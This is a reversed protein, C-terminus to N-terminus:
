VKPGPSVGAGTREEVFAHMRRALERRLEDLDRPPRDDDPQGKPEKNAAPRLEAFAALERLTRVLVALARADREAVKPAFEHQALRAEIKEVQAEANRWIRAILAKRRPQTRTTRQGNRRRPICPLPLEAGSGDDYRGDLCAYFTANSTIGTEAKIAAIADGEVYRRRVLAV